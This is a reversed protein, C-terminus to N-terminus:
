DMQCNSNSINADIKQQNEPKRLFDTKSGFEHLQGLQQQKHGVDLPALFEQIGIELLL